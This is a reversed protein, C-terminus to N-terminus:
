VRRLGRNRCRTSIILASTHVAFNTFDGPMSKDLQFVTM